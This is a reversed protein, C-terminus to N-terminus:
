KEKIFVVTTNDERDEAECPLAKWCPVEDEGPFQIRDSKNFICDLCGHEETRKVCKAKGFEKGFDVTTGLKIFQSKM